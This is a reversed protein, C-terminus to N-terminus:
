IGDQGTRDHDVRDKRGGLIKVGPEARRLTGIGIEDVPLFVREHGGVGPLAAERAQIEVRHVLGALVEQAGM